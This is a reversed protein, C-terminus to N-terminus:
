FRCTHFLYTVLFKWLTPLRTEPPMYSIKNLHYPKKLSHITGKIERPILRSERDAVELGALTTIQEGITNQIKRKVIALRSLNKTNM